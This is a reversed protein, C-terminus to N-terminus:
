AVDLLDELLELLSTGGGLGNVLELLTSGNGQLLDSGVVVVVIDQHALRHVTIGHLSGNIDGPLNRFASGRGPVNENVETLVTHGGVGGDPLM